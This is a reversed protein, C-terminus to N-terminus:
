TDEAREEPRRSAPLACALAATLSGTCLVYLAVTRVIWPPADPVPGRVPRVEHRPDYTFLVPHGVELNTDLPDDRMTWRTGDPARVTLYFSPGSELGGTDAGRSWRREVVGTVAVGREHMVQMDTGFSTAVAYVFGGLVMAAGGVVLVGQPVYERTAGLGLVVGFVALVALGVVLMALYFLM